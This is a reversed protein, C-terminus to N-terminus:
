DALIAVLYGYLKGGDEGIINKLMHYNNVYTTQLVSLINYVLYPFVELALTMPANYLSIFMQLFTNVNLKGIRGQLEPVSVLKTLFKSFDTFDGVEFRENVIRISSLDPNKLDYLCFNEVTDYDPNYGLVTNIFFRSVMFSVSNYINQDLKITYKRNICETVTHTYIKSAPRIISPSTLKPNGSIDMEMMRIAFYCSEMSVKLKRPDVTYETEGPVCECHNLFVIGTLGTAGGKIVVFPLYLPIKVQECYVMVIREDKVSKILQNYIPSKVRNQIAKFATELQALTVQKGTKMAEAIRDTLANNTNMLNWQYSNSLNAYSM